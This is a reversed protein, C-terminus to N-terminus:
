FLGSVLLGVGTLAMGAPGTAMTAGLMGSSAAASLGMGVASGVAKKKDSKSAAKINENTQNRVGEADAAHAMGSVARNKTSRVADILGSM